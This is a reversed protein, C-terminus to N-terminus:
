VADNENPRSEQASDPASTFVVPQQMARVFLGGAGLVILFGLLMHPWTISMEGLGYQVVGLGFVAFGLAALWPTRSERGYRMATLAASLSTVLFVIALVGHVPRLEFMRGMLTGIVGHALAVALNVGSSWRFVTHSLLPKLRTM